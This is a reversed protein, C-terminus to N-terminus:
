VALAGKFFAVLDNFVRYVKLGRCGGYVRLFAGLLGWLGSCGRYAGFVRLDGEFLQSEGFGAKQAELSRNQAM